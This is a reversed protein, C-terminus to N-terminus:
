CDFNSTNKRQVCTSFFKRIIFSSKTFGKWYFDL